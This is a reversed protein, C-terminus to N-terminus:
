VVSGVPSNARSVVRSFGWGGGAGGGGPANEVGELRQAATEQAVLAMLGNM